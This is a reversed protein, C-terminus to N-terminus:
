NPSLKIQLRNLKSVTVEEEEELGEELEELEEEERIYLEEASSFCESGLSKVWKKPGFFKQGWFKKSGM